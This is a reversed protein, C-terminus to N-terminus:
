TFLVASDTYRSAVSLADLERPPSIRRGTAWGAGHVTPAPDRERPHLAPAHRWGGGWRAGLNSETQAKMAQSFKIDIFCNYM